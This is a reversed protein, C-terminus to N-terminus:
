KIGDIPANLKQRFSERHHHTNGYMLSSPHDSAIMMIWQFVGKNTTIVSHTLSHYTPQLKLIERFYLWVGNICVSLGYSRPIWTSPGPYCIKEMKKLHLFLFFSSSSRFLLFSVFDLTFYVFFLFFLLIKVFGVKFRNLTLPHPHTSITFYSMSMRGLVFWIGKSSM